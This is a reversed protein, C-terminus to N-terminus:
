NKASEGPVFHLELMDNITAVFHSTKQRLQRPSHCKVEESEDPWGAVHLISILDSNQPAGARRFTL